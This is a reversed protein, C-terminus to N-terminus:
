KNKKVNVLDLTIKKVLIDMQKCLKHNGTMAPFM